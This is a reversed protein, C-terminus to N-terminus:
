DNVDDFILRVEVTGDQETRTMNLRQLQKQNSWVYDLNWGDQVITKVLGSDDRQITAPSGPRAYGSLWASLGRAPLPLGIAQYVLQDADIATITQGKQELTARSPTINIQALSAGLPTNISLQDSLNEHKLTFSGNGGKSTKNSNVKVAFRGNWQRSISEDFLDNNTWNPKLRQITNRLTSQSADISEAKKWILEAEDQKGSVWLVEGLHAGVEPESVMDFSEKLLRIAEDFNGMRYNVWGLSDIIYPDNPAQISARQILKYAEPLKINRDAYSYGLANLASSDNPKQQLISRLLSEMHDFHGLKEEGLAYVFVLSTNKPTTRTANLIKAIAVNSLDQNNSRAIIPTLRNLFDEKKASSLSKLYNITPEVSDNWRNNLMLLTILVEKSETASKPSLEDWLRAAELSATPSQAVLAIEMAQQAIRPDGTKKALDYMAEYSLSIDGRQLSFQSILYQLVENTYRQPDDVNFQLQAYSPALFLYPMISIFGLSLIRRFHYLNYKAM